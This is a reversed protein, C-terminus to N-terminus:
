QTGIIIPWGKITLTENKRLIIPKELEIGNNKVTAKVSREGKHSGNARHIVIKIEEM